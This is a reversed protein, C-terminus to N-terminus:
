NHGTAALLKSKIRIAQDLQEKLKLVEDKAKAIRSKALAPDVMDLGEGRYLGLPRKQEKNQKSITKM